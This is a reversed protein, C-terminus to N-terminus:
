LSRGMVRVWLYAMLSTALYPAVYIVVVIALYRMWRSAISSAYAWYFFSGSIIIPLWTSAIVLVTPFTGSSRPNGARGIAMFAFLYLAVLVVTSVFALLPNLRAVRPSM